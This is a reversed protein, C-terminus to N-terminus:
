NTPQLPPVPLNKMCQVYRVMAHNYCARRKGSDTPFRSLCTNIDQAYQQECGAEREEQWAGDLVYLAVGVVVLAASAALAGTAAAVGVQVLTNTGPYTAPVAPPSTQFGLQSTYSDITDGYSDEYTALQDVNLNSSSFGASTNFLLGLDAGVDLQTSGFAECDNSDTVSVNAWTQGVSNGQFAGYGWDPGSTLSAISPNQSSWYPQGGSSESGCGDNCSCPSCGTCALIEILDAETQQSPLMPDAQQLQVGCASTISGCAYARQLGSIEDTQVLKGFIRPNTLSSWTVLGRSSTVPLKQGKDDSQQKQVIDKLSLTTTALPPLSLKKTWTSKGAFITLQISGNTLAPDPNFLILTSSLSDSIAWPHEGGNQLQGEDKWPLLAPSTTSTSVAHVASLTEGPDGDTKVVLSNAALADPSIEPLDTASVSHPAINLTAVTKQTSNAGSGNSLLVTATKSVTSFNAVAAQLRSVQGETLSSHGAPVGPYIATSSNLTNVDWFPIPLLRRDDGRAHLGLGFVALETSPASSSVTIGFAKRSDRRENLAERLSPVQKAGPDHCPQLLLTQNPELKVDTNNMNGSEWLCSVSASQESESLSRIFIVPDGSLRGTVTRYNTHKMDSLMPLEEEVDGVGDVDTISLQAALSALRHPLVSISGYPTPTISPTEQLLESIRMAEQSHAGMSITKKALQDGSSTYAVVDVDLPKTSDNVMVLQSHTSEDEIFLPAVLPMPMMDPSYPQTKQAAPQNSGSASAAQGSEQPSQESTSPQAAAQTTSALMAEVTVLAVLTRFIRLM